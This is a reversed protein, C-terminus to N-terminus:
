PYNGSKRWDRSGVRGVHWRGNSCKEKHGYLCQWAWIAVGSTRRLYRGWGGWLRGNVGSGLWACVEQILRTTRMKPRESITTTAPQRTAQESWIQPTISAIPSIYVAM